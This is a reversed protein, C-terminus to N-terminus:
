SLCHSWSDGASQSLCNMVVRVLNHVLKLSLIDVIVDIVLRTLLNTGLLVDSTNGSLHM